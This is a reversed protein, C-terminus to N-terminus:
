NSQKSAKDSDPTILSLVLRKIAAVNHPTIQGRAPHSRRMEDALRKLADPNTCNNINEIKELIAALSNIVMDVTDNFEPNFTLRLAPPYDDIGPLEETIDRAVAVIATTQGDGNGMCSFDWSLLHRSGDPLTLATKASRVSQGALAKRLDIYLNFRDGHPICTELFSKGLVKERPCDWLRQAEANFELIRGKPSICVIACPANQVISKFHDCSHRLAEIAKKRQIAYRIHEGLSECLAKPKILYDDAGRKIAEVEMDKDTTATLVVIPVDPSSNRIRDVTELGSSDPLDLDLLVNDFRKKRLHNIANSLTPATELAYRFSQDPNSLIRQVLRRTAPDDGVLLVNM